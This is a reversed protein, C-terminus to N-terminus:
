QPSIVAVPSPQYESTSGIGLQGFHNRGWCYSLNDTSIVCANTSGIFLSKISKGNLAGVNGTQKPSYNSVTSGDGFSGYSNNGWCYIKGDSDIAYGSVGGTSVFLIDKGSLMGTNIVAVPVSHPSSDSGGIGLQGERNDGWCYAKNDSAVVCTDNDRASISKVTKNYLASVGNTTSVPIPAINPTYGSDANNGLQGHMNFGWCYVNNDSALACTHQHGTSIIKITKGSLAGGKYVAVPVQSSLGTNDGLQGYNNSGWCYANDDSAIACAHSGGVSISKITKGSLLGTTNVAVPTTSSTIVGHGLVGGGWCYVKDDSAIACTHGAGVSTANTSVIKVTKGSLAGTTDVAVPTLRQDTTGDGLQGYANRGWCYVKNDYAVACSYTYFPSIQKWYKPCGGSTITGEQPSYHYILTGDAQSSAAICYESDTTNYQYITDSSKSLGKGSNADIIQSPYVDGSNTYDIGLQTAANKLDSQLSAIRARRNIGGFSLITIAALIGIVVIVVLLEVITFGPNINRKHM